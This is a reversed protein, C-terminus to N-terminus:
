PDRYGQNDQIDLDIAEVAKDLAIEVPLAHRIDDFAEGFASTIVPYAPTRPRPVSQGNLLRSAFLRLPGNKGYLPSRVIARRTGPVAGNAATMKLVEDPQLLFEIFRAAAKPNPCNATIGWTWSGQATKAGRGFNPLPLIVLDDGFAAKYDSYVWHGSWSLAVRGGVFAADDIDPDVYGKQIWAQLHEMAGISERGNLVGRASRYHRRDILDGGASQLIPSFAYTFWEGQYNLKLDLVQGDADNRALAELLRDFEEITWAEENSTPIRAGVKELLSRRGYLGLGSDFTGVSYLRGKYTGAEVISPLLDKRVRPPLLRDIAILNKQWVYNYVFPGDFELIDPLEGAIAAAQVQANYTGEPLLALKVVIDRNKANFRDVQSEIVEREESRGSHVWVNLVNSERIRAGCCVLLLSLLLLVIPRRPDVLM